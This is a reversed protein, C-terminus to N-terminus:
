ATKRRRLKKKLRDFVIEQNILKGADIERERQALVTLLLLANRMSEYSEPDQIVARPKGNQTIVVPSHTRNVQDLMDAARNKLWTVPRIDDKLPM